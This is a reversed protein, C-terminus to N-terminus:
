QFYSALCDSTFLPWPTLSNISSFHIYISSYVNLLLKSVNQKLICCFPVMPKAEKLAQFSKILSFKQEVVEELYLIVGKAEM